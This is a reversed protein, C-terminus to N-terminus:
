FRVLVVGAILLIAGLMRFLNVSHQASRVLWFPRVGALRADARRDAARCFDGSGPAAAAPDIGRYLHRRVVRREVGVLQKERDVRSVSTNRAPRRGAALMCLTGGLYSIFGAWAASGISTRLDANVAQQMVFSVGAGIAFIVFAALPLIQLVAGGSTRATFFKGGTVPRPAGTTTPLSLPLGRLSRIALYAFAQAELADGDWGVAEVPRM